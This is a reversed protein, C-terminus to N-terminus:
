RQDSMESFSLSLVRGVFSLISSSDSSFLGETPEVLQLLKEATLPLGNGYKSKRRM